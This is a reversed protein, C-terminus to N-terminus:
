KPTPTVEVAKKPSRQIEGNMYEAIVKKTQKQLILFLTYQNVKPQVPDGNSHM